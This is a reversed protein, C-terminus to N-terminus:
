RRAISVTMRNGERILTLESVTFKGEIKTSANIPRGDIASILDGTQIGANAGISGERITGTICGTSICKASIGLMSLISSPSIYGGSPPPGNAVGAKRPDVGDPFVTSDDPSLAIDDSGGHAAPVPNEARRNMPVLPIGSSINTNSIVSTVPKPDDIVALDHTADAIPPVMDGSLEQEGSLVLFVGVILLVLLPFAFKALLFVSPRSLSTEARRETIRSRVRGEFDEPADVPELSALMRSIEEEHKM